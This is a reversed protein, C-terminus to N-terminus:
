SNAALFALLKQIAQRGTDSVDIIELGVWFENPSNAPTCWLVKAGVSISPENLYQPMDVRMQLIGNAFLERHTILMLGEDCLNGVLGLPQDDIVNFVRLGENHADVRDSKRREDVTSQNELEAM